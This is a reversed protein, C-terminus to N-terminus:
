SSQPDDGKHPTNMIKNVCDLWDTWAPPTTTEGNKLLQLDGLLSKVDDSSTQTYYNKLFCIMSKFAETYTLNTDACDKKQKKSVKMVCNVWDDWAAPDMTSNDDSFQIGGLLSGVDDSKTHKYYNDLFLSMSKYAELTHLHATM